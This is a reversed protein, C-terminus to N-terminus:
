QKWHGGPRKAGGTERTEMTKGSPIGTGGPVRGGPGGAGYDGQDVRNGPGGPRGTVGPGGQGRTERTGWLGYDEQDM